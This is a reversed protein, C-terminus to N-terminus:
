HMKEATDWAMAPGAPLAAQWQDHLRKATEELPLSPFLGPNDPGHRSNQYRQTFNGSQM